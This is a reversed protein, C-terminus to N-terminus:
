LDKSDPHVLHVKQDRHVRRDRIVQQDPLDLEERLDPLVPGEQFVSDELVERRVLLERYDRRARPEWAARPV